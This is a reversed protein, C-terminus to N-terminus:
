TGISAPQVVSDEPKQFLRDYRSEFDKFETGCLRDWWRFYLGYNGQVRQHHMYHHYGPTKWRLIPFRTWGRPYIEYGLHGIVNFLTSFTGAAIVAIPHWPLLLVAPLISLGGIGLVIAELPHFSFATFPTPDVSEHHVRHVREFLMPHHMLRHTWYFYTDDLILVVLTVFPVYIVDWPGLQLYMNDM